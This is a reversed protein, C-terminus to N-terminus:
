STGQCHAIAGAAIMLAGAEADGIGAVGVDTTLTIPGHTIGVLAALLNVESWGPKPNHLLRGYAPDCPNIVIPGSAGIGLGSIPNFQTVQRAFFDHVAALTPGSEGSPICAHTAFPETPCGVAVDVKTGGLEIAAFMM